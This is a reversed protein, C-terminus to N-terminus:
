LEKRELFTVDVLQIFSWGSLHNHGTLLTQLVVAGHLGHSTHLKFGILQILLLDDSTETVQIVALNLLCLKGEHLFIYYFIELKM